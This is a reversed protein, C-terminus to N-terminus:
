HSKSTKYTIDTLGIDSTNSYIYVEFKICGIMVRLYHLM